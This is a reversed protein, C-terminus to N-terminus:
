ERPRSDYESRRYIWTALVVAIGIVWLLQREPHGVDDARWDGNPWLVRLGRGRVELGDLLYRRLADTVALSRVGARPPLNAVFYELGVIYVAAWIMPWRFRAALLAGVAAYAVAGYAHAVAFHSFMTWPQLEAPWELDTACLGLALLALGSLMVLATLLAAALWKGLLLSARSVPRLFLFQFTRDEIDGHVAQVALFMALWPLLVFLYITSAFALFTAAAHMRHPLRHASGLGWLLVPLGVLVIGVLVLLRHRCLQLFTQRTVELIASLNRM